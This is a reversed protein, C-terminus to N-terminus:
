EEKKQIEYTETYAFMYTVKLKGDVIEKKTIIANRMDKKFVTEIAKILDENEFIQYGM